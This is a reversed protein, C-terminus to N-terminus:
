LEIKQPDIVQDTFYVFIYILYALIISFIIIMRESAHVSMLQVGEQLDKEVTERLWDLRISLQQYQSRRRRVEEWATRYEHLRRAVMVCCIASAVGSCGLLGARLGGGQQVARVAGFGLGFTVLTALVFGLGLEIGHQQVESHLLEIIVHARDLSQECDRIEFSAKLRLAKLRRVTLLSAWNYEDSDNVQEIIACCTSRINELKVSTTDLLRRLEEYSSTMYNPIQGNFVDKIDRMVRRVSSFFEGSHLNQVVLWATSLIFNLTASCQKKTRDEMQELIFIAKDIFARAKHFFTNERGSGDQSTLFTLLQRLAPLAMEITHLFDM